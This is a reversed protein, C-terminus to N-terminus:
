AEELPGLYEFKGAIYETIRIEVGYPPTVYLGRHRKKEYVKVVGWESWHYRGPMDPVTGTKNVARLPRSGGIGRRARAM